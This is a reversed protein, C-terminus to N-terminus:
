APSCTAARTPAGSACFSPRHSRTGSFSTPPDCCGQRPATSSSTTPNQVCSWAPLRLAALPKPQRPSSQQRCAPIALCLLTYSPCGGPGQQLMRTVSPPLAPALVQLRSHQVAVHAALEGLGTTIRWHKLQLEPKHHKLGQCYLMYRRVEQLQHMLEQAAAPQMHQGHLAHGAAAIDAAPYEDIARRSLYALGFFLDIAHWRGLTEQYM